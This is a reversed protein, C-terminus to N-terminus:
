AWTRGANEAPKDVRIIENVTEADNWPVRLGGAVVMSRESGKGTILILDGEGAHALATTIAEKRDLLRFLGVNEQKGEAHAGDAVDNIIAWPDEDYPDENTVIVTDAYRAALSGMVRRKARDRGGGAAGLIVLLRRPHYSRALRYVTELGVPEHAYDVVVTFPKGLSLIEFRGPVMTVSRLGDAITAFPICYARAVAIAAMANAINHLGPLPLTMSVGGILFNSGEKAPTVGVASLVQVDPSTASAGEITFGIKQDAPFRLFYPAEPSDLNAVLTKPIGPKRRSGALLAFLRGKAERYAAFSGHSEIHEPTLNTFVVADYVIGRHRHQAIGQSTTEIIAVDCRANAMMRLLRQLWFRGPMTMKDNNFWSRDGICFRVTSSVGVRKGAARFVAALLEVVTSKGTTGTVGIVLMRRSPFGFVAAGILSLLRHYVGLAWAPTMSRLLRKM